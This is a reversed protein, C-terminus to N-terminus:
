ISEIKNLISLYNIYKSGEFNKINSCFTKDKNYFIDDRHLPISNIKLSNIDYRDHKDYYFLIFCPSPPQSFDGYIFSYKNANILLTTNNEM